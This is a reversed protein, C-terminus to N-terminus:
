HGQTLPGDLSWRDAALDQETLGLRTLSAPLSANMILSTAAQAMGDSTHIGYGGQGVLWFFGPADPAFGVVPTRDATFTRLGAWTSRVHRVELTTWEALTQLGRAVDLEEAKADGPPSTTEDAPSVMLGGPEPKCYGVMPGHDPEFSCLPWRNINGCTAPVAAIAITRRLPFLGVPSVGALSAVQDGWAGAANIVVATEITESPTTVAWGAGSPTLRVVPSSAAIQGGTGRFWRVYIQHLNAVDIDMGLPEYLAGATRDRLIPLLRRAEGGDIFETTPVLARAQVVEERLQEARAEGGAKMMPRPGLVTGDSYEEPPTELFPRSAVTLRRVHDNGYNELFQAASRGTTHYALTAEAELLRVSLGAASLRAGASVGAIGGGIVIVDVASM